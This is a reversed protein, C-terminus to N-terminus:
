LRRGPELKKVLPEARTPAAPPPAVAPPPVAPPPVAAAPVVVAPPVTAAPTAPEPKQEPMPARPGHRPSALVPFPLLLQEKAHEGLLFAPQRMTGSIAPLTVPALGGGTVQLYGRGEALGQLETAVVMAEAQWSGEPPADGLRSTARGGKVAAPDYVVQWGMQEGCWLATEMGSCQLFLKTAPASLITPAGPGYLARVQPLSHMGLMVAIGSATGKGLLVELHPLRQLSALDDILVWVPPRQTHATEAALLQRLLMDLWLSLLPVIEARERETGTLFVWGKRETGWQRASWQQQGASPLFRLGAVARYLTSVIEVYREPTSREIVAAVATGAVIRALMERPGALVPLLKRPDKSQSRQLVTVLVSRASAHLSVLSGSSGAPLDPLLARVVAEGDGASTMEDWPSWVPCRADVPNLLVDGRAPDYFEAVLEQSRDVVIAVAGRITLQRLVSRMVSTRSNGSSGCLLVHHQELARPLAVGAVRVGDPNQWRWLRRKGRLRRQLRQLPFLQAGQLRHWGIWLPTTPWYSLVAVAGLIALVPLLGWLGAEVMWDRLPQHYVNTMFWLVLDKAPYWHEGFFIAHSSWVSAWFSAQVWKGLYLRGQAGIGMLFYLLAFLWWTMLVIIVWWVQEERTMGTGRKFASPRRGALWTRMTM